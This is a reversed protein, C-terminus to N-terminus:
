GQNQYNQRGQILSLRIKYYITKNHLWFELNQIDQADRFVQLTLAFSSYTGGFLGLEFVTTGYEVYREGIVFVGCGGGFIRLLVTYNCIRM